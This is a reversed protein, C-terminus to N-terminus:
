DALASPSFTIQGLRVGCTITEESIIPQIVQLTIVGSKLKSGTMSFFVLGTIELDNSTRMLMPPAALQIKCPVNANERSARVFDAAQKMRRAANDRDVPSAFRAVITPIESAEANLAAEVESLVGTVIQDLVPVSADRKVEFALAFAGIAIFLAVIFKITPGRISRSRFTSCHKM